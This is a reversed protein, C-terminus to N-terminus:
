TNAGPIYSIPDGLEDTNFIADLNNKQSKTINENGLRYRKDQWIMWINQIVISMETKKATNNIDSTLSGISGGIIGAIDSFGNLRWQDVMAETPWTSSSISGKSGAANYCQQSTAYTTNAM